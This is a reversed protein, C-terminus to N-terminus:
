RGKLVRVEAARNFAKGLAEVRREVVEGSLAAHQAPLELLLSNGNPRLRCEALVGPVGASLTQALRLAQGVRQAYDIEEANLLQWAPAAIPDSATGTYRTYVALALLAREAQTIAGFPAHLITGLSQEGRYDPHVRWGTDALIAAAFRIRQRERTDREFLPAIFRDIELGHDGFRNEREAMHRCTALLPDESRQREDLLAYALGERLGNASFVVDKPELIKLLRRMVLAALPLSDQRKRPVGEVRTLSEKSQKALLRTFDAAEGRQLTYQHIIHLPSHMQAMHVRAIARWSGGVAYLSKGKWKKLWPVDALKEDIYAKVVPYSDLNAIRLPGLPLTVSDGLKHGDLAVLELSGGGLDGMVGCADPIGSLVGYASYTAEEQGSLVRVTEGTEREIQGVFNAGNAADRVAATAVIQLARVNMRRALAVFRRIASLAQKAGDADLAGTQGMGRGLGCLVKENFMGTPMRLPDSFVVLRVSNSGIDIVGLPLPTAAPAASKALSQAVAM